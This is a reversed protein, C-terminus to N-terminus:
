VSQEKAAEIAAKLNRYPGDQQDTPTWDYAPDVDTPSLWFGLLDRDAASTVHIIKQKQGTM